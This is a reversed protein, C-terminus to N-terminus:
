DFYGFVDAIVHVSGFPPLVARLTLDNALTASLPVISGNALAPEGANFNITSAVPTAVGSPYATIHGTASPGVVTLNVMAARAGAPVGCTGRVQVARQEMHALAPGQPTFRTDLVRCPTVAHYRLPADTKFYGNTDVILHSTGGPVVLRVGLDPTTAALSVRAGNALAPGAQFNLNSVQPVAGGYPFLTLHGASTMGVTTVNLSAAAAGPPVGCSKPSGQVVIPRSEGDNLPRVQGDPAADFRSDHLRCPTLTQFGLGAVPADTFYGNIDIIVHTTGSGLVFPSLTITGDAAVPVIANNARPSTAPAFNLTTSTTPRGTAWAAIHGNSTPAVVTVNLSAARANPYTGCAPRPHTISLVLGENSALAHAGPYTVPDRSDWIRCPAVTVYQMAATPGDSTVAVRKTVSSRVGNVDTVTLTVFYTGSALYGHAPAAVNSTSGDGFSWSWSNVACASATPSADFQCSLGNCAFTFDATATMKQVFVDHRGNGDPTDIWPNASNFAAWKGDNSVVIAGPIGDLGNSGSWAPEGSAEERGIRQLTGTPIHYWYAGAKGPLEGTLDLDDRWVVVDFGINLGSIGAWQTRPISEPRPRITQGLQRDYVYLEYRDGLDGIYAVYRGDPSVDVSDRHIFNIGNGLTHIREIIEWDGDPTGRAAVFIDRKSDTRRFDELNTSNTAFVLLSAGAMAPRGVHGNLAQPNGNADRGRTVIRTRGLARDRVYIHFNYVEPDSASFYYTTFVHGSSVFAVSGGDDSIAFDQSHHKSEKINSGVSPDPVSIREYAGSWLDRVYVDQKANTDPGAVNHAQTSFAIFRGNGTIEHDDFPDSLGQGPAADDLARYTNHIRDWIYVNSGGPMHVPTTVINSAYSRFAVYRGDENISQRSSDWAASGRDTNRSILTT